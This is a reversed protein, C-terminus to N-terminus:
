EINTFSAISPKFLLTATGTPGNRHKAVIFETPQIELSKKKYYDERYLMIVIDADQEISNHCIFNNLLYNHFKPVTYDYVGQIGKYKIKQIKISILSYKKSDNKNLFYCYDKETLQSLRIWGRKSLVKHNGTLSLQLSNEFEILFTPKIGKFELNLSM